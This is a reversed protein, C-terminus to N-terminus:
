YNKEFKLRTKNLKCNDSYQDVLYGEDELKKEQVFIYDDPWKVHGIPKGGLKKALDYFSINFVKIKINSYEKNKEVTYFIMQDNQDEAWSYYRENHFMRSYTSGFAFLKNNNIGEEYDLILKWKKVNKCDIEIGDYFSYVKGDIKKEEYKAEAFNIFFFLIIILKTKIKLM